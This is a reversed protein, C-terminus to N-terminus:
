ADLLREVMSSVDMGTGAVLNEFDILFFPLLGTKSFVGSKVREVFDKPDTRNTVLIVKDPLTATLFLESPVCGYYYPDPSLLGSQAGVIIMDYQGKDMESIVRRLLPIHFDLPIQLSHQAGYGSPFTFDIGFCGSQHETGVQGVRYGRKQLEYRLSLQLTFKGQQSSTGLVGIIPTDFAKKEPVNQLIELVKDYRIRPVDLWLGESEFRQEWDTHDAPPLFSFVNCHREIAYSLADTLLDKKRAESAKDLYGVIMTDINAHDSPLGSGILIEEDCNQMVESTLRGAAKSHPIDAVWSIRYPLEKRFRVFGHMEKYFPYLGVNKMKSQFRNWPIVPSADLSVSRRFAADKKLFSEVASVGPEVERKVVKGVIARTCLATAFSSGGMFLESNDGWKVRQKTGRFIFHDKRNSEWGWEEQSQQNGSKVSIVGEFNAPWTTYDEDNWACVMVTGQKVVNDATGQLQYKADPDITGLSCNIIDVKDELALGLARRLLGIDVGNENGFIKYVYLRVDQPTFGRTILDACATGHGLQDRFNAYDFSEPRVFVGKDVFSMLRVNRTDIGSDVIGVKLQGSPM